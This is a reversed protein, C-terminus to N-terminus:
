LTSLLGGDGGTFYIYLPIFLFGIALLIAFLISFVYFVDSFRNRQMSLSTFASWFGHALHAALFVMVATYGFAHWPNQFTSIVLSKLDRVEIGELTTMEVPGFKFDNLHIILFLLLVIGSIAKTRAHWTNHAPGGKTQYTDYKDKRARRREKWISIGVIAHVLFTLALFFELVYLIWGLSELQWTYKNFANESGFLTLNGALHVVVFGILALGTAGNLVKRGVQSRFAKIIKM